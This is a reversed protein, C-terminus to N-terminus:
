SYSYRIRINNWPNPMFFRKFWNASNYEDIKEDFSKWAYFATSPKSIGSISLMAIKRDSNNKDFSGYSLATACVQVCNLSLLKYKAMDVKLSFIYDYSKSFDGEIYIYDTVDQDATKDNALSLLSRVDNINSIKAFCLHGDFKWAAETGFILDKKNITSTAGWSFYSWGGFRNQILLATHGFYIGAFEAREAYYIWIADEGNPDVFMAPNNQCYAFMNFGGFGQGTSVFTDANIFRGIQPDYYRSNCYYLGTETDYMYGRYRIPNLNAIHTSITINANDANYVAVPKGWAYYVYM